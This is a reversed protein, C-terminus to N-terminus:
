PRRARRRATPSAPARRGDRECCAPSAAATASRRRGAVAAALAAAIVLARAPACRRPRAAARSSAPAAEARAVGDAEDAVLEDGPARGLLRQAGDEGPEASPASSTVHMPPSPAGSPSASTAASSGVADLELERVAALRVVPPQEGGLLGLRAIQPTVSRLNASSAGVTGGPMTSRGIAARELRQLERGGRRRRPGAQVLAPGGAAGTAPQGRRQPAVEAGSGRSPEAVSPRSVTPSRELVQRARAALRARDRRQARRAAVTTTSTREIADRGTRRRPM